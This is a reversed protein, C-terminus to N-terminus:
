RDHKRRQTPKGQHRKFRDVQDIYGRTSDYLPNSDENAQWDSHPRVDIEDSMREALRDAIAKWVPEAHQVWADHAARIGAFESSLLELDDRSEEQAAENIETIEDQIERCAQYVADDHGPDRYRNIEALLIRRLLGPHIAELADLETVGEGFREAFRTARRETEKAPIRPLRHQVCQGHTLVVPRVQIDLDALDRRYLEFEIKRAVAVPMSRGGPDFDSVYLIRTPRGHKEVRDVLARCYIASLEGVGTQLNLDFREALPLVIDNITTKEVWIETQYPQPITPRSFYLRPLDPMELDIGSDLIAGLVDISAAQYRVQRIVPEANRRDVYAEPPVLGLYVADRAMPNLAEWCEHTNLYPRGNSMLIPEALSVLRYHIRRYDFGSSIELRRWVDAFWEAERQRAPTIYFPDNNHGLVYLTAAPRKLERSSQKLSEYDIAPRPYESPM